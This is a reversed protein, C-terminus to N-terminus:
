IFKDLGNGQADKVKNIENNLEKTTEKLFRLGKLYNTTREITDRRVGQVFEKMGIKGDDITTTENLPKAIYKTMRSEGKNISNYAFLLNDEAIGLIIDPNSWDKDETLRQTYIIQRDKLGKNIGKAAGKIDVLTGKIIVVDETQYLVGGLERDDITRTETGLLTDLEETATYFEQIITTVDEKIRDKTNNNNTM